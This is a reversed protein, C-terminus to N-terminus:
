ALRQQVLVQFRAGLQEPHSLTQFQRVEAASFRCSGPEASEEEALLSHLWRGQPWLGLTSLGLEEGAQRLLTWNVHATLDQDGPESLVEACLRHRRYARLTGAPRSPSLWESAELGYDLTALYGGRLSRAAGSWWALAAPSVELTFGDPLRDRWSSQAGEIWLAIPPPIERDLTLRTWVFGVQTCDVGWEFWSGAAADWGLRVIPLADLLENAFIVGTVADSGLESWDSAWNVHEQFEGLTQRQWARRRESPELLTYQLRHYWPPQKERIWALLDRALQGDHGGGEIIRWATWHMARAWRCFRRALLQGFLPGVSTSTFFDGHRGPTHSFQEYYGAVPCELAVEMFRQFPVPGRLLIEKRLLQGAPTM